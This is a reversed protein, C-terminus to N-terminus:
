SKRAEVVFTQGAIVGATEPLLRVSFTKLDRSQLGWNRRTAFDSRPKVSLIRAFFTADPRAQPWVRVRTGVAFLSLREEPVEVRLYPSSVEMTLVPTGAELFEGMRHHRTLVRGEAPAVLIGEKEFRRVKELRAAIAADEADLQLKEKERARIGALAADRKHQLTELDASPAIGERALRSLRREDSEIQALDAKLQSVEEQRSADRASVQARQREYDAADQALGPEEIRAVVSGAAIPEGEDPVATILRGSRSFSLDLSQEEAIALLRVPRATDNEERMLAGYVWAGAAAIVIAVAVWWAKRM